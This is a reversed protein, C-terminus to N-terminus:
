WRTHCRPYSNPDQSDDGLRPLTGDEPNAKGFRPWFNRDPRVETKPFDKPCKKKRIPPAGGGPGGPGRRGWGPSRYQPLTPGTRRERARLRPSPRRRRLGVRRGAQRFPEVPRGHGQMLQDPAVRACKGTSYRDPSTSWPTRRVSSSWRHLPYGGVSTGLYATKSFRAM